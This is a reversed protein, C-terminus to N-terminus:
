QWCMGVYPIITADYYTYYYGYPDVTVVTYQGYGTYYGGNYGSYPELYYSTVTRTCTQVYTTTTTSPQPDDDKECSVVSLLLAVILIKKITSFFKKM